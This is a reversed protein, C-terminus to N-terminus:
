ACKKLLELQQEDSLEAILGEFFRKVEGPIKKYIASMNTDTECLVRVLHWAFFFEQFSRHAFKLSLGSHNGARRSAIPVLVSNLLISMMDMEMYTFDNLCKRVEIESIIPVFLLEGDEILVMRNAVIGMVRFMCDLTYATDESGVLPRSVQPNVTSTLRDSFFKHKFCSIYLQALNRDQIGNSCIDKVVMNLFLPRKPIDGYYHVYDGDNVLQM